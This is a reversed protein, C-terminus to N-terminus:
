RGAPNGAPREGAQDVVRRNLEATLTSLVPKSPVGHGPVYSAMGLYAYTSRDFIWVDRGGKVREYAIGFGHRGAADKIDHVLAVGPILAAARYLAAATAPPLPVAQAIEGIALFVTASTEAATAPHYEARVDAVLTRYLAHPDTPLTLAWGYTPNGINARREPHQELLFYSDEAQVIPQRDTETRHGQRTTHMALRGAQQPFWIRDRHPAKREAEEKKSPQASGPYWGSSKRLREVYLWQGPRVSVAPQRAAADAVHDLAVAAPTRAPQTAQATAPHHTHHGTEAYGVAGAVLAAALVPSLLAPRLSFRRRTPPTAPVPPTTDQQIQTMLHERHHLHRGPPLGREAPAPLLRRLEDVADLDDANV